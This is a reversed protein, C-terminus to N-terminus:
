SAKRKASRRPVKPRFSEIKDMAEPGYFKEGCKPCEHFEIDRAIFPQKGWVGEVDRKVLRIRKSGCMPCIKINVM